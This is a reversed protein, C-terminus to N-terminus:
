CWITKTARLVLFQLHGYMAIQLLDFPASTFSTSNSFPLRMHKGLQHAHCLSCLSKNCDLIISPLSAVPFILHQPQLRYPPASPLTYLDRNYRLIMRGM